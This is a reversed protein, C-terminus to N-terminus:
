CQQPQPPSYGDSWRRLQTHENCRSFFNLFVNICFYLFFLLFGCFVVRFNFKGGAKFQLERRSRRKARTATTARQPLGLRVAHRCPALLFFKLSIVCRGGQQAAADENILERDGRWRAAEPARAPLQRYLLHM